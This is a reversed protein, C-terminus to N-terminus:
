EKESVCVCLKVQKEEASLVGQVAVVQYQKHKLSSPFKRIHRIATAVSDRSMLKRMDSVTSGPDLVLLCLSGNKRQELGVVTRSHGASLSTSSTNLCYKLFVVQLLIRFVQWLVLFYM